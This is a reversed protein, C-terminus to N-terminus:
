GNFLEKFFKRIRQLAGSQEPDPDSDLPQGTESMRYVGGASVGWFAGPAVDPRENRWQSARSQIM